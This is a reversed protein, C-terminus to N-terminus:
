PLWGSVGVVAGGNVPAATAVAVWSKPSILFAVVGAVAVTAGAGLMVWGITEQTRLGNVRAADAGYPYGNAGRPLSSFTGGAIGALVAGAIAAGGGVGMAVFAPVQWDRVERRVTPRGVASTASPPKIALVPPLKELELQGLLESMAQKAAQEFTGNAKVRVKVTQVVEAGDQDVVRGVAVATGGADEKFLSVYVGYLAGAKVAYAQVCDNRTDCDQRKVAEVVAAWDSQTKCAIGRKKALQFRLEEQLDQMTAAPMSAKVDLPCDMVTPKDQAAAVAAWLSLVAAGRWVVTM